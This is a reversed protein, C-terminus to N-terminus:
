ILYNTELYKSKKLNSKPINKITGCVFKSTIMQLSFKCKFIQSRTKRRGFFFLHVFYRNKNEAFWKGYLLFELIKPLRSVFFIIKELFIKLTFKSDNKEGGSWHLYDVFEFLICFKRTGLKVISWWLKFGKTFIKSM